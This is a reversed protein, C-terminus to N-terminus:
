HAASMAQVEASGLSYRWMCVWDCPIQAPPNQAPASEAASAAHLGVLEELDFESPHTSREWTRQALAMVTDLEAASVPGGVTVHPIFEFQEETALPGANLERHIDALVSGGINLALYVVNTSAFSRVPGLAIKFPSYRRLVKLAAETAQEVPISLPRPPLVTIHAQVFQKGPLSQRMADLFSGLPDPIYSVLAFSGM